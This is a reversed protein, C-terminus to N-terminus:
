ATPWTQQLHRETMFGLALVSPYSIALTWGLSSNIKWGCLKVCIWTVALLVQLSILLIIVCPSLLFPVEDNTKITMMMLISGCVCLMTFTDAAFTGTLAVMFEGSSALGYSAFVNDVTNGLALMTIGMTTPSLGMVKGLLSLLAIVENAILGVWILSTLFTAWHFATSAIYKGPQARSLRCVRVAFTVGMLWFALIGVRSGTTAKKYVNGFPNGYPIFICMGLPLLPNLAADWSTRAMTLAFLPRFPLAAVFNIKEMVGAGPSPWGLHRKLRQSCMEGDASTEAAVLAPVGAGALAQFSLSLRSGRGQSLESSTSARPETGECVTPLESNQSEPTAPGGGVTLIVYWAYCAIMIAAFTTSVEQLYAAILLMANALSRFAVDRTFVHPEVSVGRGAVVMIISMVGTCAFLGAGVIGGLWLSTDDASHQGALASVLGAMFDTISGGLALLTAGLLADSMELDRGIQVLAPVLYSDAVVGVLTFLYLLLVILLMITSNVSGRLWCSHLVDYDIKSDPPDGCSALACQADPYGALWEAGQERLQPVLRAMNCFAPEVKGERVEEDVDLQEVRMTLLTSSVNAQCVGPLKPIEVRGALACVLQESVERVTCRRALSTGCDGSDPFHEASLSNGEVVLYQLRGARKYLLHHAPTDPNLWVRRLGPGPNGEVAFDQPVVGDKFYLASLFVDLATVDHLCRFFEDTQRSAHWEFGNPIAKPFGMFQLWGQM